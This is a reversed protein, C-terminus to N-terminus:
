VLYEVMFVNMNMGTSNMQEAICHSNWCASVCKSVMSSHATETSVWRMLTMVAALSRPCSSRTSAVQTVTRIGVRAYDPM